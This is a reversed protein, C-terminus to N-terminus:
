DGGRLRRWVPVAALGLSALLGLDAPTLLRGARLATTGVTLDEGALRRNEGARVAGAPIIVEDGESRTFEQPVVTDLGAPLLAGTMIRRCQGPGPTETPVGGALSTGAVRLRTDADARLDSGRLAYGDM